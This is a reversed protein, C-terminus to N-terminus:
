KILKYSDRDVKNIEYVSDQDYSETTNLIRREGEDGYPTLSYINNDGSLYVLNSTSYQNLQDQSIIKLNTWKLHQYSKFVSPSLILRKYQKNNKYKIIYVDPNTPTKVIDGETLPINSNNGTGSTNSTTSNESSTSKPTYIITDSIKGDKTKLKIYLTQTTQDITKFKNLDFTQWSVNKFDPTYSIIIQTINSPLNNPDIKTAPPQSTISSGGSSSGGSSSSSSSGSGSSSSSSSTLSLIYQIMQSRIADLDQNTLDSSKLQTLYNEAASTNKGQTKASSIANQLATLYRMDNIGERFGEWQITDIVGNSTPYAFVHDRYTNYDFDNWIDGFSYQYAFDMAGDYDKQWLLLGYNMRFTRPYEPVTQPNDYLYIKHGYSHYKAALTPSPAYAAIVLDMVDAIADAYAQGQADFYFAGAAHINDIQSRHAPDNLSAEDPGYEYINVVGYPSLLNKYTSIYEANVTSGAPDVHYVNTNDLGAQQRISIEQASNNDLDYVTPNTIGHDKMDIQEATYQQATKSYSSISGTGIRGTYYISYEIDPLPLNIPLVQVNISISKIVQAGNKLSIAGTYSGAPTGSPM